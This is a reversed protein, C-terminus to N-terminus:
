MPSTEMLRHLLGEVDLSTHIMHQVDGETLKKLKPTVGLVPVGCMDEMLKPNTIEDINPQDSKGNIVIGVIPIGVQRAYHVTLYTHNVTGLNPRAVILIPLKLAISLDSVLFDKGLPVAIGGAGEVIFFDHRDKIKEWHELVAQMCIEKDELQAAVSPALPQSFEYPTIEEHSLSTQSM